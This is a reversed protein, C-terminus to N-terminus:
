AGRVDEGKAREVGLAVGLTLWFIYMPVAGTVTQSVGALLVFVVLAVSLASDRQLALRWAKLLVLLELALFLIGGQILTSLYESDLGASVVLQPPGWTGLPHALFQALGDSWFVLRGAVSTDAATGGSQVGLLTDVRGAFGASVEPAWEVAVFWVIVLVLGVPVFARGIRSGGMRRPTFDVLLQMAIGALAALLAARSQGVLLLVTAPAALYARERWGGERSGLAVMLSLGGFLSLTNPNIYVGSARGYIATGGLANVRAELVSVLAASGPLTMGTNHLLQILGVIAALWAFPILARRVSVATEKERMGVVIGIIVAGGIGAPTVLSALTRIPFGFLVGLIPLFIALLLWGSVPLANSMLVRSYDPGGERRIMLLAAYALTPGALPLIGAGGTVASVIMYEGFTAVFVCLWPGLTGPLGNGVLALAGLGVLAAVALATSPSSVTLAGLMVAAALLFLFATVRSRMMVGLSQPM